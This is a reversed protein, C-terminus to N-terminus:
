QPITILMHAIRRLLAQMPYPKPLHDLTSRTEGRTRMRKRVATESSTLLVPIRSHTRLVQLVDWGTMGGHLELDLVVLDPVSERLALVALEGTHAITVAYGCATLVDAELDALSADDEVVLIRRPLKPQEFEKQMSHTMDPMNDPSSASLKGSGPMTNATDEDQM